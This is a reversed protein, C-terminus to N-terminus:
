NQECYNDTNQIPGAAWHIDADIIHQGWMYPSTYWTARGPERM